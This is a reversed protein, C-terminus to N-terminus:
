RECFSELESKQAIKASVRHSLDELAELKLKLDLNQSLHKNFAMTTVVIGQPIQAERLQMQVMQALSSAKGGSVSDHWAARSTLGLVLKDAVFHMYTYRRSICDRAPERFVLLRVKKQIWIYKAPSAHFMMWPHM